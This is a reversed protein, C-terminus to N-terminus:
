RTFKHIILKTVINLGNLISQGKGKSYSSYIVRIPVEKIKLNEAAADIITESCFEYGLTDLKLLKLARKSFGKFGSQSDSTLRGSLLYTFFNLGWNGIKKIAPMGRPKKLRSGIVLDARGSLIPKAVRAIDQPDHQGDGDFTIALDAGSRRAAELGTVSAAGVGLNVPHSVLLARTKKAERATQDVSGDDVVFIVIKKVGAIKRPLGEVVRRIVKGENYAPIVIALKM